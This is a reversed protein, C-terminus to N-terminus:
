KQMLSKVIKCIGCAKYVAAYVQGYTRYKYKNIYLNVLDKVNKVKDKNRKCLHILKPIIYIDNKSIKRLLNVDYYVLVSVINRINCKYKKSIDTIKYNKRAYDLINNIVDQKLTKYINSMPVNDYILSFVKCNDISDRIAQKSIQESKSLIENYVENTIQIGSITYNYINDLVEIYQKKNNSLEIRNNLAYYVRLIEYDEQYQKVKSYRPIKIKYSIKNDDKDSDTEKEQYSSSHIINLSENLMDIAKHEEDDDLMNIGKHKKDDKYKNIMNVLTCISDSIHYKVHYGIEQLKDYINIDRLIAINYHFSTLIANNEILYLIDSPNKYILYAYIDINLYEKPIKNIYTINERLLKIIDDDNVQLIEFIMETDNNLCAKLLELKNIEM